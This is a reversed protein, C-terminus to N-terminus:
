KHARKGQTTRRDPAALLRRLDANDLEWAKEAM